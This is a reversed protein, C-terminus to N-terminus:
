NRREWLGAFVLSIKMSEGSMASFGFSETHQILTFFPHTRGYEVIMDPCVLSVKLKLTDDDIEAEASECDFDTVIKDILDCDKKLQERKAKPMLWHKGFQVNAEEVAMDVIDFTKVASM